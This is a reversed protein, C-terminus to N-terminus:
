SSSISQYHISNFLFQLTDPIGPHKSFRAPQHSRFADLSGNSFWASSSELSHCVLSLSYLTVDPASSLQIPHTEPQPLLTSPPHFFLLSSSSPPPPPHCRGGGSSLLTACHNVINDWLEFRWTRGRGGMTWLCVHTQKVPWELNAVLSHSRRQSLRTVRGPTYGVLWLQSLSGCGVVILDDKFNLYLGAWMECKFDIDEKVYCRWVGFM